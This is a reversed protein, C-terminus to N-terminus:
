SRIFGARDGVASDLQERIFPYKTLIANANENNLVVASGNEIVGDWSIISAATIKLADAELESVTLRKNRSMRIRENNIANRAKRQRDSDPGAVKVTIGLEEGTKPHLIKVDVGDDQAQALGSFESLDTM